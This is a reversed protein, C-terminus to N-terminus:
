ITDNVLGSQYVIRYLQQHYNPNFNKPLGGYHKLCNMLAKKVISLGKEQSVGRYHAPYRSFLSNNHCCHQNTQNIVM